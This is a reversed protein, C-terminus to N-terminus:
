FYKHYMYVLVLLFLSFLFFILSVKWNEVLILAVNITLFIICSIFTKIKLYSLNKRNLSRRLMLFSRLHIIAICNVAIASIRLLFSKTEENSRFVSMLVFIIFWYLFASLPIPSVKKIFIKMKVIRKM